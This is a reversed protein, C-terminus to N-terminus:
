QIRVWATKTITQGTLWVDGSFLPTFTISGQIAVYAGPQTTDSCATGCTTTTQTAPTLTPSPCYCSNYIADSDGAPTSSTNYYVTPAALAPPTANEFITTINARFTSVTLCPPTATACGASNPSVLQGDLLAYAAGASLANSLRLKSSVYTTFDVTFVLLMVLVPTLLAFELAAVAQINRAFHRSRARRPAIRVSIWCMM